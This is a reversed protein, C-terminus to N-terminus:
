ELDIQLEENLYSAIEEAGADYHISNHNGTINYIKIDGSSFKQWGNDSLNENTAHIQNLEKAKYLHITLETKRPEYDTLLNMLSWFADILTTQLEQSALSVDDRYDDIQQLMENRFITENKFASSFVAWSDFMAIFKVKHGLQQLRYGMEYAITGGMSSGALIYEGNAQIKLVEDVYTAALETLTKAKLLQKGYMNINQIGYYNYDGCLNNLINKYILVGGGVPHIFFVNNQDKENIKLPVIMNNNNLNSYMCIKRISNNEMLFHLDANINIKHLKSILSIALLSNGGMRFFDDDLNIESVGLIEGFIKAVKMNLEDYNPELILINSIQKSSNNMTPTKPKIDINFKSLIINGGFQNSLIQNIIIPIDTSLISNITKGSQVQNKEIFDVAMGYDSIQNLNITLIHKIGPYSRYSIEDLFLNAATYELNGVSPEISAISSCNILTDVNFHKAIELINLFGIIKPNVVATIDSINKRYLASASAKGAAHFIYDIKAFKIDRITEIVEPTIKNGIDVSLYFIHNHTAKLSDLRKKYDDRLKNEESSGLLVFTCNSLKQALDFSYAYGVAGLGGSVLFVMGNNYKVEHKNQLHVNKYNALWIYNNRIIALDKGKVALNFLNAIDTHKFSADDFDFHLTDLHHELYEAPLSKTVGYILSPDSVIKETGLVEFNNFSVSIFKTLSNDNSNCWTMVEKTVIIDLYPVERNLQSSIYLVADVKFNDEELKTFLKTFNKNDSFNFESVKNIVYKDLENFVCYINSSLGVEEILQEIHKNRRDCCLILINKYHYSKDICEEIKSLREWVRSHFIDTDNLKIEEISAVPNIWCEEYDFSYKPIDNDIEVNAPYYIEMKNLSLLGNALLIGTIDNKNKIVVNDELYEKQTAILNITQAKINSMHELNKRALYCLSNGPGVELFAVNRNEICITKMGNRFNVVNLLQACWYSPKIVENGAFLGSLNSVFKSRPKNLKIHNFELEFLNAAKQMMKSHYAHSTKLKSFPIELDTLELILNDIVESNSAVVFNNPSNIVAVECGHKNVLNNVLSENCEIALMSGPLMSQMLNGRALVLKIADELAFVGCITAAVYEGISHGIYYDPKIDLSQLYMALSYSTIFLSIQAWKTDNIDYNNINLEAEVDLEPYMIKVLDIDLYNNAINICEDVYTKFKLENRYLDLGMNSYQSGQGPFMFVLTIKDLTFAKIPRNIRNLKDILENKNVAAVCYRYEYHERRKLLTYSIDALKNNNLDEYNQLYNIFNSKYSNLSNTSKASIFFYYSQTSTNNIGRIDANKNYDSVILHANTGGVGFSSVGAIRPAKNNPLWKINKTLIFFNTTAIDLAENEEEFNLQGPIMNNQLMLCTKILGAVGAASDTHGINPKITGLYCAKQLLKNEENNNTFAERLARIEIPDGIKTGTGHCEVFDVQHSKIKAMRQANLICEAQGLISPATYGGKRDGDNNTAYGKITAIIKDKDNIADSLRKLLVVGVGSGGVTGNAKKDFTRCVGDPSLIMGDKYIYGIKDPMILSVGGALAMNCAGFQLNKCAEIVTVLGTSCGTNISYAPGTLGLLYSTKTSIADKSNMTMAEWLDINSRDAGELINHQLYSSNGSGAFVAINNDKRSQYYGANELVIYCHEVFKRIQPDTQKAENKSIGWFKYDFEGLKHIQGSVPVYQNSKIFKDNVGNDSCEDLTYTHLGSRQNVVLDWLEQTSNAGSFEGSMAIIAIDEIQAISYNNLTYKVQEKSYVTEVLHFISNFKFIDVISLNTFDALKNLQAKLKMALISNGGIKFFNDKIGIKGKEISLVTAFIDCVKQELANRPEIYELTNVLEPNPLAAKDLKGNITLPLKDLWVLSNPMMYDPLSDSLYTMIESDDLKNKAVYYAVLYKNESSLDGNRSRVLVISQQIKPYFAIKKEIEELEIRYGRIKVQSDNRGIYEVNGDPKYRVLDGTKYLKSNEEGYTQFPNDIFSELTLYDRNLYGRAHGRGSIYLEGIGGIPVPKLVNNLVYLKTNAIPKGILNTDGVIVQKGISYIATETPGYYNFLKKIKSWYLGTRYDCPEGAYVIMELDPYSRSKTLNALIVPPLYALNIQNNLLYDSCAVADIRVSEALLYITKGTLLTCFIESVSVDFVYSTFQTVKHGQVQSYLASIDNITNTVAGHELMVGKPKGTTGSTYIIYALNNSNITRELNVFNNLAIKKTLRAKDIAELKIVNNRTKCLNELKNYLHENTLLFKVNTDELIYAIRDEPSTPEIPVYAGGTKLVALIAIIMYESRELFLAILDDGVIQYKNRLYLALQNSRKNLEMYTLQQEDYVLAINDPNKTVQEEFLEHILKNTLYPKYTNNWSYIVKNYDAKNLYGIESLKIQSNLNQLSLQELIHKYTGILNEITEKEFLDVAYNFIGQISDGSEDLMTTLDFKAVNYLSIGDQYYDFISDLSGIKAGFSQVGFMVQFIPHRSTDRPLNLESVLREFPLDQHMQVDIVESSVLRIYDILKQNRDIKSRLTLNNVFFGVMDELQGYNRNAVPTGLIIDDQYSYSSLLLNYGSLLLSYLSVELDKALGKLKGSVSSDITFKIDNGIYSIKDPRVKDAPLNLAEYDSLKNKWYNLQLALIDGTLYTRQWAAFDKYQLPLEPLVRSKNQGTRILNYCAELDNLFVDISWGDFAIHHVVMALYKTTTSKDEILNIKIPYETSLSFVYNSIEEIKEHLKKTNIVEIENINLLKLNLDCVEQYGDGYDDKKILSHLVEHREVVLALCEKVLVIDISEKIKLILPINYANSGVAYEEIFWLREQAFSLNYCSNTSKELKPIIINKLKHTIVEDLLLQITRCKFILAVSLNTDLLKSIKSALKIALISNGGIKFFNDTIGIKEKAINLVEAYINCVKQEVENRPAIYESEGRLDAEPLLSKDLKGNITLPLKDLWILISPLMYDPLSNSLYDLIEAEKLKNGSVYYAVLYTNENKSNENKATAIVVSQKIGPYSLLRNEIEGLEIRFGRIKVQFDNRGIYEISGDLTYRVLDGTKYLRSNSDLEKESNSQFPNAIFRELTLDDRNLYGRALGRGGVYLEGVAGMPLPNLNNDLIYLFQDLIRTGINSHHSLDNLLIPKYTVHVTTETIGYMNILCPKNYGYKDFWKRLNVLELADGGFIVYRLKSLNEANNTKSTAIDIFQYFVKPTQNLVTVGHKFCLAYFLNLDLVENYTPIILKGGFILAGWIEWVSFDFVYSHFLTWVDNQDFKYWKKTALFLRVVNNHEQLVGKPIGTTGSTYIVYALNHNNTTLVLNTFNNAFLETGLLIKDITELKVDFEVSNCINGLKNGLSDNTLIVKTKIDKLIYIIRDNPAGPDIPVYAGGAKLVALMAIIMYENRELCLAVLDDGIIQYEDRLLRALQNSRQNLEEYSYSRDECVIAINNPNKTVEEEFLEHILKNSPFTISTDNFSYIIKNYDTTNLYSIDSLKTQSNLNQVSLQELIHQYTGILNEITEKEFLDVAYNFIGKISDGSDDLMTTLDFKAVNYLGIGDQYYDLISDLNGIKAGFSQVGFMVQFIPHRSTDRPLNLESVLREFPLDQHMQVDIVESSVLRIYDILKQSKDIKSRLTLSNVFFGVMDELQGYNRNAVPTGLIIDDQYSYSSLLLNYGSLLLSYLSVNLNKAVERLKISTLASIECKIDRGIYRVEDPRVKDLPLNLAEYNSLKNKWYDLQQELVNGTLYTRQWAAFDKYQVSLEPLVQNIDAYNDTKILNYCVELDRLFIDISWGDFAIHHIVITIYNTKALEDKIWCLKIPYEQDLIFIHNSIEEIYKQLEEMSKAAVEDIHFPKLELNCIEQYGNGFDDKKILSHLVEHRSIIHDLSKKLISIDTTAKIKFILPINYANSGGAYEEIFWLREQAFSLAYFSDLSKELPKIIVSSDFLTNLNSKLLNSITRARFISTVEIRLDLYKSLKSALKIGAISDGGMGFFDSSIGVEEINLGLAEAFINCVDQEVENRPAIYESDSRLDAEPLLSKDLKGNITLPLKDLWILVSPLMYDPLSNSLYDLIEAEKLKTKSVYYAVLYKNANADNENKSTAIVVSQKIGPYSLLFNEIEGLEIRFGRIKVQFDNRGIYELSGDLKYRVLDGTKYLRSNSNLEKESNSQFPNAIFRELTLDDRNLYGRALGVGGIYLEGVVGIPLPNLASDLVYLQTNAIAKGINLSEINIKGNTYLLSLCSGVTTETPGYEDYLKLDPNKLKKLTDLQLKEGGVIVTNIATNELDEILLNFYSPVVKIFNIKNKILYNKYNNLDKIDGSYIYLKNGSIIPCLTCTVTLDFGLSTSLDFNYDQDKLVNNLIHGVYNVVGKHELLVGKPKGTTGSTYIVYALNHANIIKGLNDVSYQLLEEQLLSDDLVELKAVTKITSCVEELRSYLSSNTLIVKANTDEIIHSLRDNPYAYDMPVYAGGAKLIALIAILMYENHEVCLTILDDGIIQYKRRLYGALQNSRQNLELYSYSRGECVIAIQDPNKVVQEEFLEHILKDSVYYQKSNNWINLEKDYFYLDGLLLSKFDNEQNKFQKIYSLFYSVFDYCSIMLSLKQNYKIQLKNAKLDCCILLDYSPLDKDFNSDFLVLIKSQSVRECYYEYFKNNILGDVGANIRTIFDTYKNTTDVHIIKHIFTKDDMLDYAYLGDSRANILVQIYVCLLEIDNKLLTDAFIQFNRENYVKREINNSFSIVQNISGHALLLEQYVTNNEASKKELLSILALNDNLKFTDTKDLNINKYLLLLLSDIFSELAEHYFSEIKDKQLNDISTVIQNLVCSYTNNIIGTTFKVCKDEVELMFGIKNLTVFQEETIGIQYDYKKIDIRKKSDVLKINLGGRIALFNKDVVDVFHGRDVLYDVVKYFLNNADDLILFRLIKLM